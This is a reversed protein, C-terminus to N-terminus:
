EYKTSHNQAYHTLATLSVALGAKISILGMKYISYEEKSSIKRL